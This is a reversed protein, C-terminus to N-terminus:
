PASLWPEEQNQQPQPLTTPAPRPTHSRAPVVVLRGQHELVDVPHDYVRELLVPTLVEAPPGDAVVAGGALVCVRDAYAAAITLDHVVAVAAHPEGDRPHGAEHRAAPHTEPSLSPTRTLRHVEALVQDQHRLDLAATPEDLLVLATQQALVRAFATRAKEGGSLTPFSRRALGLVDTRAMADAIVAEDDDERPTGAWPTRGMAVVDAAPFGFALHHEQPLVGRRRAAQAPRWGAVDAGDLLVRGHSPSVDGAIASLLTTKGAGNPGVLAVLEGPRVQLSVRHLVKRGGLEVTVDQVELM